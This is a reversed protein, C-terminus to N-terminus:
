TAYWEKGERDQRKATVKQKVWYDSKAREFPTLKNIRANEEDYAKGGIGDNESPEFYEAEEYAQVLADKISVVASEGQALNDVTEAREAIKQSFTSREWDTGTTLYRQIANSAQGVRYIRGETQRLKAPKSPMGINIIVRQHKGTTDHFSIGTAGADSQAILVNHGNSDTNFLDANKSRQGKAVRGNYLLADPFSRRLTTIPADLDLDLAILDPRARKFDEYQSEVAGVDNQTAGGVYVFPNSGGGENYDHFVIVKRGLAIHKKIQEIAEQAKIAELLQLRALYDFRKNLVRLLDSYKSKGDKDKTDWLYSFGEDIEKGIESNVLVFKRDYDFPVSLDRGSMAGETKLKEAFKRELIGVDVRGDPRTLRNTRMKYGFNDMYFREYESGSNYAAGMAETDNSFKEAPPVFDFLYGEAWDLTKVYSFPTATLFIVKTRGKPQEAWTKKWQERLPKKFEAWEALQGEDYIPEGTEPQEGIPKPDKEAHRMKVWEHFGAHHGSLARLKALANTNEGKEGQMLNHAEDVVILDWDRKGLMLNQALNAYTTAVIKDKGNDTVGDLHHIDLNLAKASKVFDRIIKDNMSVI